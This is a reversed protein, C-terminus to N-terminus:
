QICSVMVRAVCKAKLLRFALRPARRYPIKYVVMYAILFHYLDFKDNPIPEPDPNQYHYTRWLRRFVQICSVRDDRAASPRGAASHTARAFTDQMCDLFKNFKTVHCDLIDTSSHNIIM